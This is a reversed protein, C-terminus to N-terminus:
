EVHGLLEGAPHQRTHVAVAAKGDTMATVLASLPKGKLPGILDAATITGQALVGSFMGQKEPGGFLLAVPEGLKDDAMLHIHAATVDRIDEVDLVYRLMLGNQSLWFTAYGTADTSIDLPQGSLSAVWSPRGAAGPGAMTAGAGAGARGGMGMQGGRMGMRGSRGMSPGSMGPWSQRVMDSVPLDVQKVLNLNLDYKLLMDGAVVYIYNGSVAIAARGMMGYLPSGAMPGQQGMMGRMGAGAQAMGPMQGRQQALAAATLAAAIVFAVGLVMAGKRRM